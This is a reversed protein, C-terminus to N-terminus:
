TQLHSSHTPTQLPDVQYTLASQVRPANQMAAQLFLHISIKWAFRLKLDLHQHVILYLATLVQQKVPIVARATLHDSAAPQKIMGTWMEVMVFLRNTHLRSLIVLKMVTRTAELAATLLLLKLALMLAASRYKGSAIHITLASSPAKMKTCASNTM